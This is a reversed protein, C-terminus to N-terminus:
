KLEKPYYSQLLLQSFYFCEFISTEHLVTNGRSNKVSPDFSKHDIIKEAFRPKGKCFEIPFYTGFSFQNVDLTPLRLLFQFAEEHGFHCATALATIGMGDVENINVKNFNIRILTPLHNLAVARTLLSPQDAYM